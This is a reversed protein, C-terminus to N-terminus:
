EKEEPAPPPPEPEYFPPELSQQDTDPEYYPPDWEQKRTEWDDPCVIQRETATSDQESM